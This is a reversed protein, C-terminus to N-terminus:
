VPLKDIMKAVYMQINTADTISVCGDNNTDALLQQEDDLEVYLALARQIETADAVTIKSDRDVDGLEYKDASRYLSVTEGKEIDVTIDFLGDVKKGNIFWDDYKSDNKTAKIRVSNETTTIDLHMDRFNVRNVTLTPLGQPMDPTVDLGKMDASIGMYGNKAAVPVLGNEPFEGWCGVLGSNFHQHPEGTSLTGGQLHEVNYRDIIEKLRDYSNDAGYAKIRSMLEYYAIYFITGGNQIQETGFADGGPWVCCYWGGEDLSPNHFMTARPSFVFESFTDAEGSSTKTNSMFDLITKARDEDALGYTIAELNLYVCGYDHTDNNADIVQIYHDGAWFLNNYAVKLDDAYKQLEEGRATNGMAEEIEAMRTLALYGYINDYASLNGYPVIDWYNSGVGRAAGNHHPHDIRFLNYNKDYQKLLFDMALRMRPLNDQLFQEDGDYVYYNYIANITNACTTIYHNTDYGDPFPWGETGGWTHVYGSSQQPHAGILFKEFPLYNDDQWARITSIWEAWDPYTCARERSNGFERLMENLATAVEEDAGEFSVFHEPTVDTNHSVEIGLTRTLSTNPEMNISYNQNRFQFKVHDVFCIPSVRGTDCSMRLNFNYGNAGEIDIYSGTYGITTEDEVSPMRKFAYASHYRDDSSVIKKFPVRLSGVPDKEVDFGDNDWVMDYCYGLDYFTTTSNLKSTVTFTNYLKNGNLTLVWKGRVQSSGFTINNITLTNDKIVWNVDSCSSSQVKDNYKMGMYLEGMLLNEGYSATGTPDFHMTDISGNVGSLYIYGNSLTYRSPSDMLAVRDIYYHGVGGTVPDIRLQTINGKWNPIHSMDLRVTHWVGDSISTFPCSTAESMGIEDSEWYIMGEDNPIENKYKIEIIKYKSSDMSIVPSTLSPDTGGAIYSVFNGHAVDYNAVDCNFVWGMLDDDTEFNWVTTNGGKVMCTTDDSEIESFFRIRDFEILGTGSQAFDFRLQTIVDSWNSHGSIDVVVSNWNGSNDLEFAISDSPNFDTNDKKWYIEAKNNDITSRYRIELKKYISADLTMQPGYVYPDNSDQIYFFISGDVVGTWAVSNCETWGLSEHNKSFNWAVQSNIDTLSTDLPANESGLAISDIEFTGSCDKAPDFRISNVTDIWGSETSLDVTITHWDGDNETTFSKMKTATWDEGSSAWYFEANNSNTANRYSLYLKTYIGTDISESSNSICPDANNDFTMILASDEVTSSTMQSNVTWNEFNGNDNFNWFSMKEGNPIFRLKDIEFIGSTDQVPDFRLQTVTGSYHSNQSLEVTVTHWEGDAVTSFGLGRQPAWGGDSTTFYLEANPNDTCNRYTLEMKPFESVNFSVQPGTIYADGGTIDLTYIGNEVTASSINENAVWGEYDSNLNWDWSTVEIADVVIVPVFLGLLIIITLLVSLTRKM